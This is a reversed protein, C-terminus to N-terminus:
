GPGASSRPRPSPPRSTRCRSSLHPPRTGTPVAPSAAASGSMTTSTGRASCPEPGMPNDSDIEWGFLEAYYRKLAEGDKGIIEFHVVPHGM